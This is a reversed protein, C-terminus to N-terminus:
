FVFRRVPEFGPLFPVAADFLALNSLVGHRRMVLTARGVKRPQRLVGVLRGGEGVQEAIAQPVEPVAGGLLIVQYPAQEPYGESLKGTVVAVNDTGLEALVEETRAALVSDSELAVVTGALRALVASSYGTGCGVDLVVDDPSVRASQLLRALVVPEMLYRDPAIELDEDVYAIGRYREPVFRERPIEEIAELLRPDTVENTRLQSEVMNHRIAAYDVM